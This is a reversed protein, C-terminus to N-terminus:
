ERPAWQLLTGSMGVDQGVIDGSSSGNWYNDDTDNWYGSWFSSFTTTLPYSGGIVNLVYFMQNSICSWYVGEGNPISGIHHSGNSGVDTDAYVAIDCVANL